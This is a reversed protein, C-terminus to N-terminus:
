ILKRLAHWYDPNWYRGASGSTSPLVFIKSRGIEKDYLGYDIHRTKGGFGLAFSAATKSTFAVFGPQYKVMKQIFLDVEYNSKNIQKDNGSQKHVLDTLGIKYQNIEYCNEPTLKYPTFGAEFLIKYFKNRVHAYYFGSDASKKGKATGCFVVDLNQTLVDKLM